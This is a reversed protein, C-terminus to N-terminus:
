NRSEKGLIIIIIGKREKANNEVDGCEVGSPLAFFKKAKGGTGQRQM